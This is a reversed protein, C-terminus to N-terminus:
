FLDKITSIANAQDQLYKRILLAYEEAELKDTFVPIMSAPLQRPVLTVAYIWVYNPSSIEQHNAPAIYYKESSTSARHDEIKEIIDTDTLTVEQGTLVNAIVPNKIEIIRSQMFELREATSMVEGPEVIYITTDRCCILQEVFKIRSKWSFGTGCYREPCIKSIEREQSHFQEVRGAPWQLFKFTLFEESFVDPKSTTM